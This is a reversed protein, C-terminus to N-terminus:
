VSSCNPIYKYKALEQAPNRFTLLSILYYPCLNQKVFIIFRLPQISTQEATGANPSAARFVLLGVLPFIRNQIKQSFSNLYFLYTNTYTFCIYTHPYAYVHTFIHMRIYLYPCMCWFSHEAHCARASDWEGPGRGWARHHPHLAGQEHHVSLPSTSIGWPPVSQLWKAHCALPIVQDLVACRLRSAPLAAQELVEAPGLFAANM